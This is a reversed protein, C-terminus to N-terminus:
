HVPHVTCALELRSVRSLSVDELPGEDLVAVWNEAEALIAAEIREVLDEPTGQNARWRELIGSLRDPM